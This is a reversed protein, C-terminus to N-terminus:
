PLLRGYYNRGNREIMLLIQNSMREQRFAALLDPLGSIPREGVSRVIDGKKLFSAPGKASTVRLRGDKEAAAIGWLEAMLKQAAKDTFAAPTVKVKMQRGSRIIEAEVASATALNRLANIYDRKDRLQTANLRRIVDGNQLGAKDGPAGKLVDTVLAGQTDPLGLAMAERQDLNGVLLGLWLPEVHGKQVLGDMVRRAKNIPIAFGIGEGRSDIATNIGILAGDLNLLPGGSNGPNIAADTQILETLMGNGMRLSRNLASVVGTTVTHTFGFPNGIAIVTEGPMIDGSDGMAIAPLNSAGELELVALDFDPEIGRVHARYERGDQLHAMIEGGDGLVHANTLILGKRGDVIVGSGLSARKRQGGGFPNFGPGFFSELPTHSRGALSSTINVVAPAATAVAQVVPTMRQSAAACFHACGLLGSIVACAIAAFKFLIKPM